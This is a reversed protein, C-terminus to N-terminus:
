IITHLNMAGNNVCKRVLEKRNGPNIENPASVKIKKGRKGKGRRRLPIDQIGHLM